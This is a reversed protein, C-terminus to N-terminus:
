TYIVWPQYRESWAANQIGSLGDVRGDISYQIKVIKWASQSVTFNSNLTTGSYSYSNGGTTTYDFRRNGTTVNTLYLGDGYIYGTASVSGSVTLAQTLGTGINIGVKGASALLTTTGPIRVTLSQFVPTASISAVINNVGSQGPVVGLLNRGDGYYIGNFVAQSLAIANTIATSSLVPFRLDGFYDAHVKQATLVQVVM